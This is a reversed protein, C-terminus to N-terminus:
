HRAELHSTTARSAPHWTVDFVASQATDRSLGVSATVGALQLGAELAGAVGELYSLDELMMPPAHEVHIRVRDPGLQEVRMEGCGRYIESWTISAHRVVTLPTMGFLAVAARLIPRLLPGEIAIRMTSSGWTRLARAGVRRRVVDTLQLDVALPLWASGDASMVTRVLEEGLCQRLEAAVDDGLTPLAHLESQMYSARM